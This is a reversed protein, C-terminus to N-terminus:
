VSSAMKVLVLNGGFKIEVIHMSLWPTGVLRSKTGTGLNKVISISDIGKQNINAITVM